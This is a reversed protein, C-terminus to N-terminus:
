VTGNNKLVEAIAMNLKGFDESKSLFYDAGAEMCKEMYQPYPYSTLICIRSNLGAAKIKRLVELGNLGPMRLDLIALGPHHMVIMDLAELGNSAEIVTIDDGFEKIQNIIRERMLASDDATVVKMKCQNKIVLRFKGLDASRDIGVLRKEIM